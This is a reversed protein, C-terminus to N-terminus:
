EAAEETQQQITVLYVCDFAALVSAQDEQESWTHFPKESITASDEGNKYAVYYLLHDKGDSLSFDTEGTDAIRIMSQGNQVTFYPTPYTLRGGPVTITWVYDLGSSNTGGIYLANNGKAATVNRLQSESEQTGSHYTSLTVVCTADEPLTFRASVDTLAEAIGAEEASFESVSVAASAGCGGLALMSAALLAACVGKIQKKM